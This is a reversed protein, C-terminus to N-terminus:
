AGSPSRDSKWSLVRSEGEAILDDIFSPSVDRHLQRAPSDANLRCEELLHSLREGAVKGWLQTFLKASRMADEPPEATLSRAIRHLQRDRSGLLTLTNSESQAAVRDLWDSLLTLDWAANRIGKLATHRDISYLSKLLKARRSNPALYHAALVVAPGGILFDNYMWRILAAMRHESRGGLLELQAIKLALIYNRRWRRLPMELDMNRSQANQSMASDQVLSDSEGLALAAWQETPLDDALRFTALEENAVLGGSSAALEYLSINPEIDINGCQAFALLAAAVRHSHTIEDGRVASTWRSVLNRDALLITRTSCEAAEIRYALTRYIQAPYCPVFSPTILDEQQV